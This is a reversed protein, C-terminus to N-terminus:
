RLAKATLREDDFSRDLSPRSWGSVGSVGRRTRRFEWDPDRVLPSAAAAVNHRQTSVLPMPLASRGSDLSSEFLNGLDRM